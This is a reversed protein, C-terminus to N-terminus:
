LGKYRSISIRVKGDAVRLAQVTAWLSSDENEVVMYHDRIDENNRYGDKIEKVARNVAQAFSMNDTFWYDGRGLDFKGEDNRQVSSFHFDQKKRLDAPTIGEHDRQYDRGDDRVDFKVTEPNYTYKFSTESALYGADKPAAVVGGTSTGNSRTGGNGKGM